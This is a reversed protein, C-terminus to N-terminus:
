RIAECASNRYEGTGACLKRLLPTSQKWAGVREYAAALYWAVDDRPSAGGLKRARELPQVAARGEDTSLRCVGQYLPADEANPCRFQLAELLVAAKDYQGSRYPELASDLEKLYTPDGSTTLLPAPKVVLRYALANLDARGPPLKPRMLWAALLVAAAAFMAPVM